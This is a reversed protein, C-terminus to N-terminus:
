RASVVAIQSLALVHDALAAKVDVASAGPDLGLEADLAYLSFRYEHEEGSPPCPGGYGIEGFDNEGQKAGNELEEDAPLDLALGTVELPIDYMVWHVFNDADPDELLLVLSEADQPVDAWTLDPSRDEGDCTFEAPVLEGSTFSDSAFLMPGVELPPTDNGNTTDDDGGCSALLLAAALTIGIWGFRTM